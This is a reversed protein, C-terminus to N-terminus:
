INIVMHNYKHNFGLKEYWKQNIDSCALTIHSVNEIKAREICKKILATGVGLKQLKDMVRVDNIFGKKRGNDAFTRTISLTATGVILDDEEVIYIFRRGSNVDAIIWDLVETFEKCRNSIPTNILDFFGKNFDKYEISRIDM